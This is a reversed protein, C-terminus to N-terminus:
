KIKRKLRLFYSEYYAFSLGAILFTILSVLLYFGISFSFVFSNLLPIQLMLYRVGLSVFPHFIYIGYSIRGLYDIQKPEFSFISDDRTGNVLVILFLSAGLLNHPDFRVPLFVLVILLSLASIVQISKQALFIFLRHDRSHFFMAGLTVGAFIFHFRLTLIVLKTLWSPLEILGHYVMLYLVLYLVLAFFSILFRRQIWMMVFILWPFLLYFQEEVGISWLSYMPGINNWNVIVYNPLFVIYYWIVERVDFDFFVKGTIEPYVFGMTFFGLFVGLYYLPFIRLVRRWYFRRLDFSQHQKIEHFALYTLLFGSIVFFFDVAFPGKTLIPYTRFLTADVQRLGDNCHFILVLMAAFFRM